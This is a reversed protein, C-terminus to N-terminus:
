NTSWRPLSKRL